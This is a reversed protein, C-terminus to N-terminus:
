KKHHERRSMVETELSKITGENHNHRLLKEISARNLEIVEQTLTLHLTEIDQAFDDEFTFVKVGNNKLWRLVVNHKSLYVKTGAYLMYLINGLAQQRYHLFVATPHQQLFHYYASLEMHEELFEAGDGLSNTYIKKITSKYRKFQGYTMPLSIAYGFQKMRALMPLADAHNNEITASNGLLIRKSETNVKGTNEPIIDSFQFFQFFMWPPLSIKANIWQIEEEVYWLIAHIKPIAERLSRIPTKRFLVYKYYLRRLDYRFRVEPLRALLRRTQPGYLRDRFLSTQQYIEAGYFCWCHVLHKSSKAIIDAKRNDLFYHFVIDGNELHGLIFQEGYRDTSVEYTNENLQEVSKKKRHNMLIYLCTWGPLTFTKKVWPVFKKDSLLHISRIMETGTM